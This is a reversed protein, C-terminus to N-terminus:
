EDLMDLFFDDLYEIIRKYIPDIFQSSNLKEFIPAEISDEIVANIGTINKDDFLKTPLENFPFQLLPKSPNLNSQYIGLSDSSWADIGILVNKNAYIKNIKNKNLEWAINYFKNRDSNETLRVCFNLNLNDPPLIDLSNKGVKISDKLFAKAGSCLVEVETFIMSLYYSLQASIRKIYANDRFPLKLPSDFYIQVNKLLAKKEAENWFTKKSSAEVLRNSAGLFDIIM